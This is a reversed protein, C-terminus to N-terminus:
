KTSFTHITVTEYKEGPRLTTSPFNSKNPSDPYHQTELCFANYKNYIKGGKGKLGNLFIGSYFQVGPETSEITMTRGSGPDEVKAVLKMKGPKGKLVYNHDYGGIDIQKMRSGISMPLTFDFPTGEVNKLEGTPISVKDIPTFKDANIMLLQGLMEGSDHGALNWYSHNTLNVVTPKDTTAEYKMELKNDATLTYTMICKLNGPFGEEGDKSLYSLKLMAKNDDAKAEEIKWVKKHFGDVGGHLTNCGADNIPLKYEKGDLTFKGGSIRNGYRGIIAGFFPNFSSPKTYPEVSDFGLVIDAPKGNRDPAEFSVITGGYNTIKATLGKGNTLTVIEVERGDPTKGFPEVKVSMKGPEKDKKMWFKMERCGVVYAAVITLIAGALIKRSM